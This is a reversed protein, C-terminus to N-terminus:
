RWELAKHQLGVSTFKKGIESLGGEWDFKFKRAGIKVRKYKRLLFEIYDLVERKLDEPLEKIKLKIEKEFM